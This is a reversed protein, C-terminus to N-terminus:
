REVDYGAADIAAIVSGDDLPDAVVTVTKTELDVAVSQVGAVATVETTIADVCHGCSVGPVSYTTTTM